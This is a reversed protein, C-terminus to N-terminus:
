CWRSFPCDLWVALHDGLLRLIAAVIPFAMLGVGLVIAGLVFEGRTRAKGGSQQLARYSPEIFRWFLGAIAAAGAFSALAIFSQSFFM